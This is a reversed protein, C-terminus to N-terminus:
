AFVWVRHRAITADFDVVSERAILTDGLAHRAAEQKASNALHVGVHLEAYIAAPLLAIENM